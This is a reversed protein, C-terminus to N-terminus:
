GPAARGRAAATIGARAAPDDLGAIAAMLASDVEPSLARPLPVPLRPVDCRHVLLQSAAVWGSM